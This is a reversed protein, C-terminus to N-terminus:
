EEVGRDRWDGEGHRFDPGQIVFHNGPACDGGGGGPEFGLAGHLIVLCNM